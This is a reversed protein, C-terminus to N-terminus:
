VKGPGCFDVIGFFILKYNYVKGMAAGFLKYLHFNGFADTELIPWTARIRANTM